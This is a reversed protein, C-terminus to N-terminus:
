LRRRQAVIEFVRQLFRHLIQQQPSQVISILSYVTEHIFEFPDKYPYSTWDDCFRPKTRKETPIKKTPQVGSLVVLLTPLQVSRTTM